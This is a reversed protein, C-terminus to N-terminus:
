IDLPGKQPAGKDFQIHDWQRDGLTNKLNCLKGSVTLFINSPFLDQSVAAPSQTQNMSVTNMSVCTLVCVHMYVHETASYM